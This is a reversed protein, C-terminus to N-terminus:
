RRRCIILIGILVFYVPATAYKTMYAIPLPYSIIHCTGHVSLRGPYESPQKLSIKKWAYIDPANFFEPAKRDLRLYLFHSDPARCLAHYSTTIRTGIGTM